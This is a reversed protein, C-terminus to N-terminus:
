LISLLSALSQDSKTHAPQDSANSTAFVDNNSIERAPEYTQGRLEKCSFLAIDTILIKRKKSSKKKKQYFKSSTLGVLNKYLIM